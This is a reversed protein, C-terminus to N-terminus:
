TLRDLAATLNLELERNYERPLRSHDSEAGIIQLDIGFFKQWGLDRGASRRTWTEEDDSAVVVIGRCDLKSPRYQKKINEYLKEM